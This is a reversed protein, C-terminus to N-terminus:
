ATPAALAGLLTPLGAGHMAALVDAPPTEGGEWEM